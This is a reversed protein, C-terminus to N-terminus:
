KWKRIQGTDPIEKSCVIYNTETGYFAKNTETGRITYVTEADVADKQDSSATGSYPETTTPPRNIEDL